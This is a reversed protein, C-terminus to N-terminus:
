LEWPLSSTVLGFLLSVLSMLSVLSSTVLSIVLSVLSMWGVLGSTVLLGLRDTGLECPELECITAQLLGCPWDSLECPEGIVLSFMM